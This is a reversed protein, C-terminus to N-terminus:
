DRLAMSIRGLLSPKRPRAEFKPCDGRLNIKEHNGPIQQEALFPDAQKQELLEPHYCGTKRKWPTGGPHRQFHICDKCEVM